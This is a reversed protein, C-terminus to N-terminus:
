IKEVIGAPLWGKLIVKQPEYQMVGVAYWDEKRSLIRIKKGEPVTFGVTYDTGPGNRVEAPSSIVIASVTKESVSYKGYWWVLGAALLVATVTNVTKLAENRVFLSLLIGAMFLFYVVSCFVTLENMTFINVISRLVGEGPEKLYSRVFKLNDKIDADRPSLRLAKEYNLISKGINNVRYYANGLNYFVGADYVGKKVIAEYVEIAQEFNSNEYYQNGQGFLQQVGAPQAGSPGAAMCLLLGALLIDTRISM